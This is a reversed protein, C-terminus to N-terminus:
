SVISIDLEAKSYSMEEEVMVSVSGDWQVEVTISIKPMGRPTTAIMLAEQGLYLNDRTM